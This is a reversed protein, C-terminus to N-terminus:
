EFRVSTLGGSKVAKIDDYYLVSELNGRAYDYYTDNAGTDITNVWLGFSTINAKDFAGGDKGKFLSFPLTVLKAATTGAFPTGAGIEVENLFVEFDESGSRVQIVVKQNKGDPKIWLQLADYDSWDGGYSYTRGTYGEGGSVSLTYSFAM